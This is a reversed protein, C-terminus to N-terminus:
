LHGRFSPLDTPDRHKRMAAEQQDHGAPNASASAPKLRPACAHCPGEACGSSV